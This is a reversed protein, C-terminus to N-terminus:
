YNNQARPSPTSAASEPRADVLPSHWRAHQQMYGRTARTALHAHAAAGLLGLDIAADAVHAIVMSVTICAISSEHMASSEHVHASARTGAVVGRRRRRCLAFSRIDASWGTSIRITLMVM